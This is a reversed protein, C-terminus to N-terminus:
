HEHLGTQSDSVRGVPTRGYESSDSNSSRYSDRGTSHRAGLAGYEADSDSSGGLERERATQLYSLIEARSAGGFMSRVQEPSGAAAQLLARLRPKQEPIEEYIHDADAEDDGSTKWDIM